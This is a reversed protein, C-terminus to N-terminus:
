LRLRWSASVQMLFAQVERGTIGDAEAWVVLDDVPTVLVAGGIQHEIWGAYDARDIAYAIRYRLSVDFLEDPLAV